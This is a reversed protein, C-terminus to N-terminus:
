KCRVIMIKGKGDSKIYLTTIVAMNNYVMGPLLELYDSSIGDSAFNNNTSISIIGDTNNAIDVRWAYKYDVAYIEGAEANITKLYSGKVTTM